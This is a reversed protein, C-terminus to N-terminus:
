KIKFVYVILCLSVKVTQAQILTLAHAHVDMKHVQMLMVHAGMKALTLAVPIRPHQFYYFMTNFWKM